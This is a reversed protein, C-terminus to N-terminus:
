PFVTRAILEVELGESDIPPTVALKGKFWGTWYVRDGLVALESASTATSADAHPLSGIGTVELHSKLKM